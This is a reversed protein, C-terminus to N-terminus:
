TRWVVMVCQSNCAPEVGEAAHAHRHVIVPGYDPYSTKMWELRPFAEEYHAMTFTWEEVTALENAISREAETMDVLVIRQQTLAM